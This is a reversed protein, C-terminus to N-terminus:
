GVLPVFKFPFLSLSDLLALVRAPLPHAAALPLSVWLADVRQCPALPHGLDSRKKESEPLLDIQCYLIRM